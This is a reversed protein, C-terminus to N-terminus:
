KCEMNQKYKKNKALLENFTSEPVEQCYISTTMYKVVVIKMEIYYSKGAEINITISQEEAKKKLETGSAQWTFSHEGPQVEHISFQKNKLKCVFNKDIFVPNGSGAMSGDSQFFYVKGTSPQSLGFNSISSGLVFCFFLAFTKM